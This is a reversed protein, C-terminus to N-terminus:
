GAMKDFKRILLFTKKRNINRKTDKNPLPVYQSCMNGYTSKKSIAGRTKSAERSVLLDNM